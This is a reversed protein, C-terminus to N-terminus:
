SRSRSSRFFPLPFSYSPLFTSREISRIIPLMPSRCLSFPLFIPARSLISTSPVRNTLRAHFIFLPTDRDNSQRKSFDRIKRRIRKVGKRPNISSIKKWKKKKGSCTRRPKRTSPTTACARGTGTVRGKWQFSCNEFLTCTSAATFLPRCPGTLTCHAPSAPFVVRIWRELLLPQFPKAAGCETYNHDRGRTARVVGVRM